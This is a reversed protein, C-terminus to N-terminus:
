GLQKRLWGSLYDIITVTIIIGILIIGVRSWSRTQIAFLLPTGVGGAGVMGLITASRVSIEFRYLSYSAFAPLVQPLTAFMLGNVANGGVSAISESPGIDIAEISEAFLKGLMGVSHVGLALVGAFAGPGVAKIFMIALVIEPFTRVVALIVRGSTSVVSFHRQRRKAAWFAFPISIFASIITGVFAIALTQLMVSVLDEGNGQYVYHWDPQVIGMLVARTVAGASSQVKSFNIGFIGWGYVLVILLAWFWRRKLHNNKSLKYQTSDM